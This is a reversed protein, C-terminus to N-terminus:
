KTNESAAKELIRIKENMEKQKEFFQKQKRNVLRNAKKEGEEIEKQLKDEM